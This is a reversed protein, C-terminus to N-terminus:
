LTMRLGSSNARQFGGSRYGRASTGPRRKGFHLFSLFGRRRSHHRYSAYNPRFNGPMTRRAAREHTHNRYTGYVPRFDGPMTRGHSPRSSWPWMSGATARASVLNPAALLALLCFTFALRLM